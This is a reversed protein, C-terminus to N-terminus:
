LSLAVRVVVFLTRKIRASKTEFDPFGGRQLLQLGHLSWSSRMIVYSDILLILTALLMGAAMLEPRFEDDRALAIRAALTFLASQFVWVGIMIGALTRVADLDRRPCQALLDSDVGVLWCLFRLWLGIKHRAGFGESNM